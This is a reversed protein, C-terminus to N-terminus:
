NNFTLAFGVEFPYLDYGAPGKGTQFLPTQYYTGYLQFNGFGARATAGYRLMNLSFDGYSKVKPGDQYVMKTHSGLKVAGIPGAAFNLHNNNVPIQLELLVPLDLYITALKTKELPAGPDLIEIRNNAGKLINNDGDFKYNNFNIGLGTVIGLHRFLRINLQSFNLNFNVSNSSNLTMYEIDAPMVMSRGSTVYNNFGLELGTWHGRFRSKRHKRGDENDDQTWEEKRSYKEFNVKPGELSELLSLGRNGVRLNLSSDSGEISLLDDGITVKSNNDHSVKTEKKEDGQIEASVIQGRGPILLAALLIFTKITKM